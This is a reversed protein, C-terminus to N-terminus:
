SCNKVRQCRPLPVADPNHNKVWGADAVFADTETGAESEQKQDGSGKRFCDLVLFLFQFRPIFDRIVTGGPPLGTRTPNLWQQRKRTKM